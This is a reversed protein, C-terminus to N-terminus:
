RPYPSFQDAVAWWKGDEKIMVFMDRGGLTIKQGGMEFSMEFYYTVVTSKGYLQIKPELEKWYNIKAAKVFATWSAICAERGELRRRDTATIAVMDDHFYNKLDDVNGKTWARNLSQVTQWIEEKIKAEDM